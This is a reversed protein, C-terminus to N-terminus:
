AGANRDERARFFLRKIVGSRYVATSGAGLSQSFCRSKFHTDAQLPDNETKGLKVPFKSSSM